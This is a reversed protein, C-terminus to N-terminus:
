VPSTNATSLALRAYAKGSYWGLAFKFPRILFYILGAIVAAALPGGFTAIAVSLVGILAIGANDIISM